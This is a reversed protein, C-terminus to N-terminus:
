KKWPLNGEAIQMCTVLAVYSKSGQSQMGVCTERTSAKALTWVGALQDRAATEDRRCAAMREGTGDAATTSARCSTEINYNPVADSVTLLLGSALAIMPFKLM